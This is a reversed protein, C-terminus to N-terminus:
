AKNHWAAPKRVYMADIIELYDSTEKRGSETIDHHIENQNKFVM